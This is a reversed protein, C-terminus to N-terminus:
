KFCLMQVKLPVKQDGSYTQKKKKQKKKEGKWHTKFGSNALLNNVFRNCLVQLLKLEVIVIDCIYSILLVVFIEM